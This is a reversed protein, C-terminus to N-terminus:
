FNNEDYGEFFEEPHVQLAKALSELTKLCPIRSGNEFRTIGGRTYEPSMRRGLEAQNIGTKERLRIINYKVTEQLDM